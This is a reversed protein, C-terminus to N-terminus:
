WNGGLGLFPAGLNIKTGKYWLSSNFPIAEPGTSMSENLHFVSNLFQVSAFMKDDTYNIMRIEEDLTSLDQRAGLFQWGNIIPPFVTQNQRPQLQLDVSFKLDLFGRPNFSDLSRDRGKAEWTAAGTVTRNLASSAYRQLFSRM